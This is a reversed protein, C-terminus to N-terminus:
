MTVKRVRSQFQLRARFEQEPAPQLKRPAKIRRFVPSESAGLRTSVWGHFASRGGRTAGGALNSGPGVM